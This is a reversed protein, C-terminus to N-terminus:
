CDQYKKIKISGYNIEKIEHAQHRENILNNIQHQKKLINDNKEPKSPFLKLFSPIILQPNQERRM